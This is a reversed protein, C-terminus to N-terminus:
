RTATSARSAARRRSGCRARSCPPASRASRARSPRPCCGGSASRAWGRVPSATSRAAAWWRRTPTTASGTAWARSACPSRARTWGRSRTCWTARSACRTTPGPLVGVGLALSDGSLALALRDVADLAGSLPRGADDNERLGHAYFSWRGQNWESSGAALNRRFRVLSFQYEVTIRSASSIPRRNSFTIRAREYDIAYDAAEGRTMRQGDVTVIESGPVVSVGTGGDRGPLLYPGQQGDVGSFSVRTYEGQAGAAAGRLALDGPRWEGSVGQVRRDLKAFEGRTVQVPIDGLSGRGDPARLEVLVRDLSRLDQTTGDVGVPTDRDTLVGTLEVGPALTGGVSLDLSQRLAADQSSGFDVAITKNGNVGLAAGAPAAGVDRGTAPRPVPALPVAVSEPAAGPPRAPRYVQRVYELPPPELLACARVWLTEGPVLPRLLQVDGTLRDLRYDRPALWPGTRTWLSDSGARLFNRSLRIVAVGPTPVIAEVFCSPDGVEAARADRAGESAAAIAGALAWRRLWRGAAAARM